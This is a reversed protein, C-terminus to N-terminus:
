AGKVTGTTKAEARHRGPTTAHTWGKFAHVFSSSSAYGIAQAVDQVSTGRELLEKAKALRVEADITRFSTGERVLARRLSRPSMQLDSAIMGMSPIMGTARSLREHVLGATGIRAQREALLRTCQEECLRLATTDVATRPRDLDTNAFGLRDAPRDFAPTTGFVDLYPRPDGSAPRALEIRPPAIREGMEEFAVWVTAILHDVVFRHITQPLHSTDIAIFTTHREAILSARSLTFALDQYRLSIGISERLTPASACAFGLIGLATLKFRGGARLGLTPDDAHGVLNEILRLEKRASIEASLDDLDAHTLGTGRLIAAADIGHETGLALLDRASAASRSLTANLM